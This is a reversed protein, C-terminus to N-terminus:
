LHHKLIPVWPLFEWVKLAGKGNGLTRTPVRGGNRSTLNILPARHENLFETVWTHPLSLSQLALYWGQSFRVALNHFIFRQKNAYASIGIYIASTVVEARTDTKSVWDCSKWELFQGVRRMEEQLLTVEEEWRAARAMCQAWEVRM